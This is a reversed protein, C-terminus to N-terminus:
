LFDYMRLAGKGFNLIKTPTVGLKYFATSTVPLLEIPVPKGEKRPLLTVNRPDGDKGLSLPYITVQFLILM